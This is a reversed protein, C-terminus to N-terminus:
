SLLDRLDRITLRRDSPNDFVVLQWGRRVGLSQGCYHQSREAVITWMLKFLLVRKDNTEDILKHTAHDNRAELSYRAAVVNEEVTRGALQATAYLKREYPQLTDIVKENDGIEENPPFCEEDMAEVEELLRILYAPRALMEM